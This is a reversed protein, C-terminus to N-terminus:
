IQGFKTLLKGYTNFVKGAVRNCVSCSHKSVLLPLDRGDVDLFYEEAKRLTKVEHQTHSMEAKDMGCKCYM